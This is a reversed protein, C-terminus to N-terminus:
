TSRMNILEDICEHIMTKCITPFSIEDFEKEKGFFSGISIKIEGQLMVAFVTMKDTICYKYNEESADIVSNTFHACHGGSTESLRALSFQRYALNHKIKEADLLLHGGVFLDDPLRTIGTGQINLNGGVYLKDPLQQIPTNQIDLEDGVYFAAPLKNLRSDGLLLSGGIDLDNPLVSLPTGRLDLSDYIILQSPLKVIHCGQLILSGYIVLKSPLHTIDSGRLDITFDKHGLRSIHGIVTYNGSSIFYQTNKSNLFQKLSSM